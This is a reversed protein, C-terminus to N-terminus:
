IRGGLKNLSALFSRTYSTPQRRLASGSDLLRCYLVNAVDAVVSKGDPAGHRGPAIM